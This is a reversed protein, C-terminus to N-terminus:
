ARRRSWLGRGGFSQAPPRKAPLAVRDGGIRKVFEDAHAQDGFCWRVYEQGDRHRRRGRRMEIGRERHFAEIDYLMNDGFGDDPLAVEVLHPFDRENMRAIREVQRYTM